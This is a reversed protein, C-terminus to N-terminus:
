SENTASDEASAWRHLWLGVACTRYGHRQYLRQAPINCGQTVVRARTMGASAFAAEAEAVLRSGYGQGRSQNAVAILEITGLRTQRDVQCVLFGELDPTTLLLRDDDAVGRQLWKVYLESALEDSFQPDAYFRSASFSVRSIPELRLLDATSVRQARATGSSIPEVVRDLEIRVDYCRFGAEEASSVTATRDPDILATLCRVGRRDAVEIATRIREPSDPERVRAVKCGFHESDWELLEVADDV